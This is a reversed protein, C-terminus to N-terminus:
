EAFTNNEVRFTVALVMYNYTLTSDQNTRLILYKVWKKEKFHNTKQSLTDAKNNEFGKYYLIIFNYFLLEEAWQM